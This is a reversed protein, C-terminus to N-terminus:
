LRNTQKSTPCKKNTVKVFEFENPGIIYKEPIICDKRQAAGHERTEGLTVMDKEVVMEELIWRRNDENSHLLAFEFHNEKIGKKPCTAETHEEELM